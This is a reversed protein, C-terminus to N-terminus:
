WSPPAWTEKDQCLSYDSYLPPRLKEQLMELQLGGLVEEGSLQREVSYGAGLVMAVFQRVNHGETCFGHLFRQGPVVIYDQASNESAKESGDVKGTLANVTGHLSSNSDGKASHVLSGLCLASRM